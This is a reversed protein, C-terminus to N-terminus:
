PTSTINNFAPSILILDSPATQFGSQSPLVQASKAVLGSPGGPTGDAFTLPQLEVGLVGPVSQLTLIVEFALVGQGFSRASFSFSNELASEAAARVTPPDVGPQLVLTATVGFFRTNCLNVLLLQSPDALPAISSQIRGVFAATASASVPEVGGAAAVTLYTFPIGGSGLLTAQAKGVGPLNSAFDAYDSLTVIRGLTRVTRPAAARADALVQPAVGGTAPLPNQVSRIGLPRNFLLTLSGAPVNGSPGLGTRYTATVNERGSPLRAGAQGDGFIVSTKGQDDVRVAYARSPGTQGFLAPVEHWAVGNVSVTLTSAGGSPTAAPLYTLNPKALVFRQNQQSGDGSGLVEGAVTQGHTAPAVNANLTLTTLDYTNQLVGLVLATYGGPNGTMANVGAHVVSTLTVIETQTVGPPDVHVLTAPDVRQGTLAVLKGPELGLAMHDLVLTSAAVNIPSSTTYTNQLSATFTLMTTTSTAPAVALLTMTETQTVGPPDL